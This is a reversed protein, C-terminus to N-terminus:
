EREEFDLAVSNICFREGTTERPGDPFVHGLHGGCNACLVEIRRMGFSDDVRTEVRGLDMPRDFSPWGSGSDFKDESDFLEAGCGACHYVGKGKHDFYRGTFARETGHERLVRYQEDTLKQRWQEETMEVPRQTNENDSM